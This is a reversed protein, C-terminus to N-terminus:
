GCINDMLGIFIKIPERFKAPILPINSVIILIPRIGKYIVCIKQLVAGPNSNVEAATFHKSEGNKFDALHLRSVHADIEEYTMEKEM